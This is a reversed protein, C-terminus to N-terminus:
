SRGAAHKETPSGRWIAAAAAFLLCASIMLSAHMGTM